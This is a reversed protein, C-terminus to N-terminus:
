MMLVSFVFDKQSKVISIAATTTVGGLLMEWM